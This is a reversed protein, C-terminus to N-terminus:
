RGAGSAGSPLRWRLIINTSLPPHSVVLRHITFDALSRGGAAAALELAARHPKRLGGMEDPLDVEVDSEPLEVLPLRQQEFFRLRNFPGAIQTYMGAQASGGWRVSREVLVELIFWAAPVLAPAGYSGLEGPHRAEAYAAKPLSEIFVADIGRMAADGSGRFHVANIAPNAAVFLEEAAAPTSLSPVLSGIGRHAEIPSRFRESRSDSGSNTGRHIELSPGPGVRRLGFLMTISSLDLLDDEGSPTVLYATALADARTGFRRAALEGGDRRIRLIEERGEDTELGGFALFRLTREDLRRDLIEQEFAQRAAVLDAVLRPECGARDLAALALGWGRSGPRSSLVGALDSSGALRVLRWALNKDVGLVRGCARVATPDRVVAGIAASLAESLSRARNALEGLQQPLGELPSTKM